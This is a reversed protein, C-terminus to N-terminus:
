SGQAAAQAEGLGQDGVLSFVMSRIANIENQLPCKVGEQM